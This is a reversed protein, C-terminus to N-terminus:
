KLFKKEQDPLETSGADRGRIERGDDSERAADLKTREKVDRGVRNRSGLIPQEQRHQPSHMICIM